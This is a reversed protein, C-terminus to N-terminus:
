IVSMERYREQRVAGIPLTPNPPAAPRTFTVRPRLTLPVPVFVVSSVTSSRKTKLGANSYCNNPKTSITLTLEHKHTSRRPHYQPHLHPYHATYAKYSTSTALPPDIHELRLALAPITQHPGQKSTNRDNKDPAKKYRNVKAHCFQFVESRDGYTELVVEAVQLQGCSFWPGQTRTCGTIIAGLFLIWALNRFHSFFSRLSFLALFYTQGACPRLTLM